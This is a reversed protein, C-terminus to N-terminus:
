KVTTDAVPSVTTDVKTGVSDVVVTSSDKTNSTSSGTGCATLTFMVSLAVILIYNRM